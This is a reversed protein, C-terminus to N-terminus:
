IHFASIPEAVTAWDCTELNLKKADPLKWFQSEEVRMLYQVQEQHPEKTLFLLEQVQPNVIPINIEINRITRGMEEEWTETTKWIEEGDEKGM